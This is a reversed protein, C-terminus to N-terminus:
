GGGQGGGVTRKPTKGRRGLSARERASGLARRHSIAQVGHRHGGVSGVAGQQVPVKQRQDPNRYSQNWPRSQRKVDGVPRAARRRPYGQGMAFVM